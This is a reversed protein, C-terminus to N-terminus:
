RSRNPPASAHRSTAADGEGAAGGRAGVTNGGGGSSPVGVSLRLNIALVDRGSQNVGASVQSWSCLVNIFFPNLCTPRLYAPTQPM